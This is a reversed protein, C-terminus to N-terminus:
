MRDPQLRVPFRRGRRGARGRSVGHVLRPASALTGTSMAAASPQGASERSQDAPECSRLVLTSFSRCVNWGNSSSSRCRDPRLVRRRPVSCASSPQKGTCEQSAQWFNSSSTARRSGIMRSKISSNDTDSDDLSVCHAEPVKLEVEVWDKATHACSSRSSSRHLTRFASRDDPIPRCRAPLSACPSPRLM